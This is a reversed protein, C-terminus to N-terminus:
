VKEPFGFMTLRSQIIEIRHSEILKCKLIDEIVQIEPQLYIVSGLASLGKRDRLVCLNDLHIRLAEEINM